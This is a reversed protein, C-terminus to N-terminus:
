IPVLKEVSDNSVYVMDEQAYNQFIRNTQERIEEKREATLETDSKYITVLSDMVKFQRDVLDRPSPSPFFLSYGVFLLFLFGISLMAKLIFNKSCLFNWDIKTIGM